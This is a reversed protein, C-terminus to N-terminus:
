PAAVKFAVCWLWPNAEVSERGNIAEWLSFYSIRPDAAHFHSGDPLGFGSGNPLHAIGEALADSESIDQLREVRVDTVELTIRSLNRPMHISPKWGAGTSDGQVDARYVTHAPRSPVSVSAEWCYDAPEHIFAERVYLRDGPIGYPCTVAVLRHGILEGQSHVPRRSWHSGNTFAGLDVPEQDRLVRRTQTKSGDLLSRVMPASFLIPREKM